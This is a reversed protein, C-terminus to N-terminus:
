QGSQLDLGFSCSILYVAKAQSAMFQLENRNKEGAPFLSRHKSFLANM